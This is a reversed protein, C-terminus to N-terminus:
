KVSQLINWEFCDDAGYFESESYLYDFILM